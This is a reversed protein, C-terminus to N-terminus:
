NKPYLSRPYPLKLARQERLNFDPSQLIARQSPTFATGQETFSAIGPSYGRIINGTKSNDNAAYVTPFSHWLCEYM